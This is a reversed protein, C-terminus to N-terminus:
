DYQEQYKRVIILAVVNFCLTLTFLTLGLAFAVLTEASAFEIDGTLQSVIKVTVTTM